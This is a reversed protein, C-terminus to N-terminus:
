VHRIASVPTLRAARMAPYLAGIVSIFPIIFLANVVSGWTLVPYIIAGVGFSRLGDSFMRLDLGTHSLPLYLAYGIAFGLATGIIGLHLAELLVMMLLRSDPMGIAKLVGFEHIREFVSMLMTNIIGFILAIGIIGYFIFMSQDYMDIQALLLPLIEGYTFVEYGDGLQEKLSKQIAPLRELDSMILAFESVRDGITLMSQASALPIYITSKDFESSFTEFLGVIRFVDSGVHGDVASAMAVIRDGLGVGLKEALAEGIVAENPKGSLYEGALLSKNITTVNKERDHDVGLLFIGSSNTASSILGYTLVRPTSSAIGRVNKLADEVRDADPITAQIVPNDRFGERHIQLHSVHSRIQNDLIQFIMGRSLTDMLVTAIVGVMISVLIVISRRKNRWVNRWAVTTLRM